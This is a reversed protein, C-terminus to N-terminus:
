AFVSILGKTNTGKCAKSIVVQKTHAMYDSNDNHTPVRGVGALSRECYTVTAMGDM